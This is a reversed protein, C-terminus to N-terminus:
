SLKTSKTVTRKIGTAEGSYRPIEKVAEVTQGKRRKTARAFKNRGRVRPNRYEKKRSPLLGKNKMIKYSVSRTGDANDDRGDDNPLSYYM